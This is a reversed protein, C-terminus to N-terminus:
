RPSPQRFSPITERMMVVIRTFVAADADVLSSIDAPPLEVVHLLKSSAASGLSQSEVPSASAAIAYVTVHFGHHTVLRKALELVPILHGLGPSALLVAHPKSSEM